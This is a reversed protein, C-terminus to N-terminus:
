EVPGAMDAVTALAARVIHIASTPNLRAYTDKPSHYGPNHDSNSCGNPLDNDFMNELIEIAGVGEDWFSGHDSGSVAGATLYDYRPLNLDYTEISQVFCSGVRDSEPLHGVHMEFCRDGDSDYGFMDLNVVGLIEDPNELEDVYARSGLLGLEEGTFWIIRITREFQYDSFLRAAELLAASGSANDEAGPANKEPDGSISDLHASLIVVEDPRATGPLTLILNEAEITLNNPGEITFPQVKVQGAPYWDLVTERVFDLANPGNDEDFMAPTYRTSLTVQQGEITVPEAGSLQKVWGLWDDERTAALIQATLPSSAGCFALPESQTPTLSAPRTATITPEPEGTVTSVPPLPHPGTTGSSLTATPEATLTPHLTATPSSTLRACAGTVVVMVVLLLSLQYYVKLTRFRYKM